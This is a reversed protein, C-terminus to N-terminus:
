AAGGRYRDPPALHTLHVWGCRCQYANLLQGFPVVCREAALRAAEPTAYRLKAPHPCAPAQHVPRTGGFSGDPVDEGYVRPDPFEISM